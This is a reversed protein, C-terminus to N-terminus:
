GRAAYVGRSGPWDAPTHRCRKRRPPLPRGAPATRRLRDSDAPRAGGRPREECGAAAIHGAGKSGHTPDEASEIPPPTNDRSVSEMGVIVLSAVTRRSGAMRFPM